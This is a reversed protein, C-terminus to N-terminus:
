EDAAAAGEEESPASEEADDESPASEEADDESPASEEEDDESPASEEADDESSAPKDDENGEDESSAPKDDEDGEFSPEDSVVPKFLVRCDESCSNSPLTKPCIVITHPTLTNELARSTTTKNAYRIITLNSEGIETFLKDAMKTKTEDGYFVCVKQTLVTERIEEYTEEDNSIVAQNSIHMQTGRFLPMHRTVPRMQSIRRRKNPHSKTRAMTLPESFETESSNLVRVCVNKEPGNIQLYLDDEDIFVCAVRILLSAIRNRM